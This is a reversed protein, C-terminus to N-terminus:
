DVRKSKALNRLITKLELTENYLNTLLESFQEEHLTFDNPKGQMFEIHEINLYYVLQNLNSGVRNIDEFNKQFKDFQSDSFFVNEAKYARILRRIFESKKKEPNKGETELEKIIKDLDDQTLCFKVDKLEKGM